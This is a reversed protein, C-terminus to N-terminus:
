AGDKYVCLSCCVYERERVGVYHYEYVRATKTTAWCGKM